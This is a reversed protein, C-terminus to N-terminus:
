KELIEQHVVQEVEVQDGVVLEQQLLVEAEEVQMFEMLLVMFLNQLLELYLLLMKEMEVMEVLVVQDQVQVELVVQEVEVLMDMLQHEMAMEVQIVLDMLEQIEQNHHSHVVDLEEEKVLDEELDVLLQLLHM